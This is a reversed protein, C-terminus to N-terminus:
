LHVAFIKVMSDDLTTRLKSVEAFQLKLSPEVDIPRNNGGKASENDQPTRKAKSKLSSGPSTPHTAVAKHSIPLDSRLTWCSRSEIALDLMDDVLPTITM